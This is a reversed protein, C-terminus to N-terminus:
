VLIQEFLLRLRDMGGFDMGHKHASTQNRAVLRPLPQHMVPAHGHASLCRIASRNENRTQTIANAQGAALWRGDKDARAGTGGAVKGYLSRQRLAAGAAGALSRFSFPPPCSLIVKAVTRQRRPRRGVGDM